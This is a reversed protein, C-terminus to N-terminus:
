RNREMLYITEGEIGPKEAVRQYGLKKYQQEMNHPCLVYEKDDMVEYEDAHPLPEDSEKRRFWAM